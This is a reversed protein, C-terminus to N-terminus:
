ANNLIPWQRKPLVMRVAGPSIRLFIRRPEEDHAFFGYKVTFVCNLRFTRPSSDPIELLSQLIM